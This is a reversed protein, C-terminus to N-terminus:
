LYVGEKIIINFFTELDKTIDISVPVWTSRLDYSNYIDLQDNDRYTQVEEKTVSGGVVIPYVGSITQHFKGWIAECLLEDSFSQSDIEFSLSILIRFSSKVNRFGNENYQIRIFGDCTDTEVRNYFNLAEYDNIEDFEVGTNKSFTDISKKLIELDEAM